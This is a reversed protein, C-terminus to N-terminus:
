LRGGGGKKGVECPNLRLAYLQGDDLRETDDDFDMHIASACQITATAFSPTSSTSEDATTTHLLIGAKPGTVYYDDSSNCEESVPPCECYTLTDTIKFTACQGPKMPCYLMTDKGACYKGDAVIVGDEDEEMRRDFGKCGEHDERKQFPVCARFDFDSGAASLFEVTENEPNYEFSFGGIGDEKNDGGTFSIHFLASVKEDMCKVSSSSSEMKKDETALDSDAITAVDDAAGEQARRLSKLTTASVGTTGVTLAIIATSFKM